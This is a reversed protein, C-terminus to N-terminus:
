GIDDISEVEPLALRDVRPRRSSLLRINKANPVPRSGDPEVVELGFAELSLRVDPEDTILRVSTVGLDMLIQAGIAEQRDDVPEGSGSTRRYVSPHRYVSSIRGDPALDGVARTDAATRATTPTNATISGMGAMEYQPHLDHAAGIGRGEHRLYVVVGTGTEGIQSMAQELQRACQCRLSGFVDGILCENHVRVLVSDAARPDGMVLALHTQQGLVTDYAYCTFTGAGTPLRAEARRRVLLERRLRYAILDSITILVLDHRRAFFELEARRAMGVGDATVVECLVGAPRLGALRALDVAAETHGPRALVGGDRARLVHLHGPRALDGPTTDDDVLSRITAARDRASIGTSTGHRYDVTVTFATGQSETNRDVMLPLELQDARDDAIAACIMGSTHRVFFALREPDAFEAAMILDGEDERDHDDLVVVIEGRGMAAIADEIRATPTTV